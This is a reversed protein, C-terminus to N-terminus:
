HQHKSDEDTREKKHNDHSQEKGSDDDHMDKMCQKMMAQMVPDDMDMKSDDMEKMVGCNPKEANKMHEKPDHAQTSLTFTLTSLAIAFTLTKTKM